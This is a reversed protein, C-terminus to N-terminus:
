LIEFTESNSLLTFLIFLFQGEISADLTHARSTMARFNSISITQPWQKPSTVIDDFYLKCYCIINIKFNLHLYSICVRFEAAM